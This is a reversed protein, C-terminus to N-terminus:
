YEKHISQPFENVPRLNVQIIRHKAEEVPFLELLVKLNIEQDEFRSM